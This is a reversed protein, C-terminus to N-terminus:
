RRKSNHDRSSSLGEDNTEIKISKQLTKDFIERATLKSTTQFVCNACRHFKKWVSPITWLGHNTCQLCLGLSTNKKLEFKWRKSQSKNV